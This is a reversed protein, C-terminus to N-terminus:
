LITGLVYSYKLESLLFDKNFRLYIISAKVWKKYAQDSFFKQINKKVKMYTDINKKM